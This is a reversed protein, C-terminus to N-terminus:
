IFSYNADIRKFQPLRPNRRMHGYVKARYERAQRETKFQKVFGKSNRIPAQGSKTDILLVYFQETLFNTNIM